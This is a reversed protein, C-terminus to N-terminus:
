LNQDSQHECLMGLRMASEFTSICIAKLLSSSNAIASITVGFTFSADFNSPPTDKCVTESMRAAAADM